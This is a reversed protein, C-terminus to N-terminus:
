PYLRETQIDRHHQFLTREITRVSVKLEDAWLRIKDLYDLWHLVQLASGDPDYDVEQYLALLQWVRIDIVGYREPDVLTLFASAVPIGVGRLRCLHLIRRAEDSAGFARASLMRVEDETNAAWDQRRRERPEKWKCMSLFESRTFYGRERVHSLSAILPATDPYEDHVLCASLLSPIDPFRKEM